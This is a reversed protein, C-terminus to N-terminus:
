GQITITQEPIPTAWSYGDRQVGVIVFQVTQVTQGNTAYEKSAFRFSGTQDTTGILPQPENRWSDPADNKQRFRVQVTVEVGQILKGNEDKIQVSALARWTNKSTNPPAEKGPDTWKALVAPLAPPKTTTTTSASTTTSTSVPPTTTTPSAPPTTTTTSTTTVPPAGNCSPIPLTTVPGNAHSTFQRIEVKPPGTLNFRYAVEASSTFLVESEGPKRVEALFTAFRDLYHCGDDSQPYGQCEITVDFGGISLLQPKCAVGQAGISQDVRGNEVAADIASTAAYVEARNQVVPSTIRLGTGTLSLIAPMLLSLIAVLALVLVLSTGSQGGHRRCREMM